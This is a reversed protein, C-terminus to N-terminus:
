VHALGSPTSAILTVSRNAAEIDSAEFHVHRYRGSLTDFV